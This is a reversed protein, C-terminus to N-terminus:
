PLEPLPALYVWSRGFQTLDSLTYVEPIIQLFDATTSTGAQARNCWVQVIQFFQQDGVTQRLAQLFCAGRLAVRADLLRQAGPDALVLDQAFARLRRMAAQAAAAASSGGTHEAWLWEAYTAFAESLWFQSWDAATVGAGFWQRAVANAVQNEHTRRGDVLSADVLGLTQAAFSRRAPNQLGSGGQAPLGPVVATGYVDFPYAGFLTTFLSLMQGQRGLDYGAAAALAPPYANRVLVDAPAHAQAPAADDLQFEGVQLGVLYSAMPGPHHYSWTLQDGSATKATLRGNALVSYRAPATVSIDYAAKSSPHDVCPYWTSAGVPLSMVCVPWGSPSAAGPGTTPTSTPTAAGPAPATAIGAGGAAASGPVLWGAPGVGIVSAPTSRASYGIALTVYRGASWVDPATLHLKGGPTQDFAVDQGNMRVSRVKPGRLDLSLGTLAAYPMVQLTAVGDFGTLDDALTLNVAYHQVLFGGAGYGPFYPDLSSTAGQTAAAPVGAMADSDCGSLLAGAGGAGLLAGLGLLVSRRGVPTPGADPRRETPEGTPAATM